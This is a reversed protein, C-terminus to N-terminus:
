QVMQLSEPISSFIEHNSFKKPRVGRPRGLPGGKLSVLILSVICASNMAMSRGFARPGLHTVIVM